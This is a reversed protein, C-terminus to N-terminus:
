LNQPSLCKTQSRIMTPCLTNFISHGGKALTATEQGQKEMVAVMLQYFQCDYDDQNNDGVDGDGYHGHDHYRKKDMVSCGVATFSVIIM